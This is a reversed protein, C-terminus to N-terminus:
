AWFLIIEEPTGTAIGNSSSGRNTESHLTNLIGHDISLNHILDELSLHYKKREM